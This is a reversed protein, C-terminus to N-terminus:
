GGPAVPLPKGFPGREVDYDRRVRCRVRFRRPGEATEVEVARVRGDLGDTDYGDGDAREADDLEHCAREAAEEADVPREATVTVCRGLKLFQPEDLCGDLAHVVWDYKQEREAM